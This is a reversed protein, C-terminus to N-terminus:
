CVLKVYYWYSVNVAENAFKGFMHWPKIVMIQDCTAGTPFNIISCLIIFKSLRKYVM